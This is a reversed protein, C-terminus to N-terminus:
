QKVGTTTGSVTGGQASFRGAYLQKDKTMQVQGILSGVSLNIDVSCDKNVKFTGDTPFQPTNFTVFECYSGDAESVNGDKDVVLKCQGVHPGAALFAAQYTIWTGKADKQKCAAHAQGTFLLALAIASVTKKM